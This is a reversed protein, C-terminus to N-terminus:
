GAPQRETRCCATAPEKTALGLTLRLGVASAYRTLTAFTPNLSRYNELRCLASRDIGTRDAVDALSLGQGERAERLASVLHNLEVLDVVNSPGTPESKIGAKRRAFSAKIDAEALRQAEKRRAAEEPTARPRTMRNQSM